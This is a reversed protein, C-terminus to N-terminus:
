FAGAVMALGLGAGSLQASQALLSSPRGYELPATAGIDAFRIDIANFRRGVVAPPSLLTPVGGTPELAPVHVEELIMCRLGAEAKSRLWCCGPCRFAGSCPVAPFV